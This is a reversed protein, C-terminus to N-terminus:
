RGPQASSQSRLRPILKWLGFTKPDMNISKLMRRAEWCIIVHGDDKIDVTVEPSKEEEQEESVQKFRDQCDTNDEVESESSKADPFLLKHLIKAIESSIRMQDRWRTALDLKCYNDEHVLRAIMGAMGVRFSLSCSVEGDVKVM